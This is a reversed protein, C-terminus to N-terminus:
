LPDIWCQRVCLLTPEAGEELEVPQCQWGSPCRDIADDKCAVLCFDGLPQQDEDQFRLCANPAPCEPPSEAEADCTGCHPDSAPFPVCQGSGQDCNEGFACQYNHECGKAVCAGAQCEKSADKCDADIQCGAECQGSERDCYTEPTPCDAARECAGPIKCKGDVQCTAPSTCDEPGDCRPVCRGLVCVNAGEGPCQGSETCGPACTRTAESCIEGIPCEGDGECLGLDACAGSRPVCQKSTLGVDLCDYGTPCGAGTVCGRGCFTGGSSFPLCAGLDQCGRSDACPECLSAQPECHGTCPNCWNPVGCNRDETCAKGDPVVCQGDCDCVAGEGLSACDGPGQCATGTTTDPSTTGDTASTGDGSSTDTTSTSTATADGSSSKSDGCAAVLSVLAVLAVVARAASGALAM